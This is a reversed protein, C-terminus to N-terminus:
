GGAAALRECNRAILTGAALAAWGAQRPDIDPLAPLLQDRAIGSIAPMVDPAVHLRRQTAALAQDRVVHRATLFAPSPSPVPMSMRYGLKCRMLCGGM